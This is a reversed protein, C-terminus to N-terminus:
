IQLEEEEIQEIISINANIIELEAIISLRYCDNDM